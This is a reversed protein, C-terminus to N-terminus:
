AIQPLGWRKWRIWWCPTLTRSLPLSLVSLPCLIWRRMLRYRWRTLVDRLIRPERAFIGVCDLSSYAPLVGQRSLVGYGPKLGLVGCCAAPM